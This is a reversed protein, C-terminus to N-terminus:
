QLRDVISPVSNQVLCTRQPRPLTTGDRTRANDSTCPLLFFTCCAVADRRSQCQTRIHPAGACVGRVCVGCVRGATHHLVTAHQLGTKPSLRSIRDLHTAIRTHTCAHIQGFHMAGSNTNSGNGMARYFGRCRVASCCRLIKARCQEPSWYNPLDGFIQWCKLMARNVHHTTKTQRKKEKGEKLNM